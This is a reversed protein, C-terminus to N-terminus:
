KQEDCNVATDNQVKVADHETHFSHGGGSCRCYVASLNNLSLFIYWWTGLIDHYVFEFTVILINGKMLKM